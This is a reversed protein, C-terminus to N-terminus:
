FRASVEVGWERGAALIGTAVGLDTRTDNKTLFYDKDALNLEYLAVTLARGPIELTARASALGYRSPVVCM